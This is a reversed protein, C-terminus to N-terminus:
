PPAIGVNTISEIRPGSPEAVSRSFGARMRSTFASTSDMPPRTTWWYARNPCHSKRLMMSAGSSTVIARMAVSSDARPVSLVRVSTATSTSSRM